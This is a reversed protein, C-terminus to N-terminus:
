KKKAQRAVAFNFYLRYAPCNMFNGNICQSEEGKTYLPHTLTKGPEAKNCDWKELSLLPCDMAELSREAIIRANEGIPRRTTTQYGMKEVTARALARNIEDANVPAILLPKPPKNAREKALRESRKALAKARRAMAAKSTDM